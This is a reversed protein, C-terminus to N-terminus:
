LAATGLFPGPTLPALPDMVAHAHSEEILAQTFWGILRYGQLSAFHSTGFAIKGFVSVALPPLVAWLFPVRRAWASVLLMWGYIPAHWVAIAALGYSLALSM